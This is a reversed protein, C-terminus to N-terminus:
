SQRYPHKAQSIREGTLPLSDVIESPKLASPQVIAKNFLERNIDEAGEKWVKERNFEDARLCKESCYHDPSFSSFFRSAGPKIEKECAKCTNESIPKLDEDM